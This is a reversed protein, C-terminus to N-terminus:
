PGRTRRRADEPPEPDRRGRRRTEVRGVGGLEDDAEAEREEEHGLARQREVIRLGRGLRRASQDRWDQRSLRSPEAKPVRYREVRIVGGEVEMRDGPDAQTLKPAGAVVVNVFVPKPEGDRLPM